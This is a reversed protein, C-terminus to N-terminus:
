LSVQFLIRVHNIDVEPIASFSINYYFRLSNYFFHIYYYFFTLKIYNYSLKSHFSVLFKSNDYSPSHFFLM